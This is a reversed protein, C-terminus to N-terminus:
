GSSGHHATSRDKKVTECQCKRGNLLDIIREADDVDFVVAVRSFMGRQKDVITFSGDGREWDYRLM